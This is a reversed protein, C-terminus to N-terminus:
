PGITGREWVCLFDGPIKQFTHRAGGLLRTRRRDDAQIRQREVAFIKQFAEVILDTFSIMLSGRPPRTGHLLLEAGDGDIQGFFDKM